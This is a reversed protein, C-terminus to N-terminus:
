SFHDFGTHEPILLQGQEDCCRIQDGDDIEGICYYDDDGLLDPCRTAPVTFCLEYDDGGSLQLSLLTEESILGQELLPRTCASFEASRPIKATDIMAGVKSASCIHGLDALLGDSIDIASSALGRLKLGTEIRPVPLDLSEMLLRGNPQPLDVQHRRCWLALGAMGVPGSLYIWDGPRAGGRRLAQGDPVFGQVLVTVALPGRSTDGGVLQVKFRSLMDFLGNSFERLWEPNAHPLTLSLVAWAPEAGMAALDSLNVAAAKWGLAYPSSDQNFHVGEVLTDISVAQAMSARPRLLAADDGIGLLVDDRFTCRQDFYDRILEFETMAFTKDPAPKDPPM